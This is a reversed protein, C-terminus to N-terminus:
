SRYVWDYEVLIRVREVDPNPDAATQVEKATGLRVLYGTDAPSVQNAGYDQIVYEITNVLVTSVMDRMTRQQALWNTNSRSVWCNVELIAATEFGKKGQGVNRGQWLDFSAVSIHYLSFAPMVAPDEPADTTITPMDPLWSPRIVDTLAARIRANITAEVNFISTQSITTAM